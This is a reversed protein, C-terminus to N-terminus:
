VFRGKTKGKRACGDARSSASGGKAMKKVSKQKISGGRRATPTSAPTGTDSAAGTASKDKEPPKTADDGYMMRGFMGRHLLAGGLPSISGVVDAIREGVSKTDAM